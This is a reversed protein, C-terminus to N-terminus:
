LLKIYSLINRSIFGSIGCGFFSKLYFDWTRDTCLTSVYASYESVVLDKTGVLEPPIIFSTEGAAYKIGMARYFETRQM